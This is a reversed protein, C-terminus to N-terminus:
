HAPLPQQKAIEAHAARALPIARKAELGSVLVVASEQREVLWHTPEVLSRTSDAATSDQTTRPGAAAAAAFEEADAETDWITALITATEAGNSYLQWRDGDWGAAAPHTWASPDNLANSELAPTTAGVLQALRLEGLTGQAQKHWDKGIERALDPDPLPTPEDRQAKDWYKEPHLLQESSQPMRAFVSDIVSTEVGTLLRAPEGRLMFIMGLIYPAMLDRQLLPPADLLRASREMESQQFAAMAEASLRGSTIEEMLYRMMILMGSGEVVSALAMVRDNDAMVDVVMSDIPHYQDDLAHTLEHAMIIPLMDGSFREAVFFADLDTDYYGAVQEDLVSEMTALLNRDAPWLGLQVSATAEDQLAEAPYFRRMQARMQVQMTSDSAAHIPVPARFRLGRLEEVRAAVRDRTAELESAPANVGAALMLNLTVLLRLM